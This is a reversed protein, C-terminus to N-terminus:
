CDVVRQQFTLFSPCRHELVELNLLRAIESCVPETYDLKAESLLRKFREKPHVIEELRGQVNAVARGGKKQAIANVAAADALLWTEVERRVVCVHVGHSFEWRWEHVKRTLEAEIKGPDKGGSDRIVLAKQYRWVETEDQLNRLATEQVRRAKMKDQLDRLFALVNKNLNDKGFCPRSIIPVDRALIRPILEPIIAVDYPGEVILGYSNAPVAL